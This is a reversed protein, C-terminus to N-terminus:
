GSPIVGLQQMMGMTDWNDWVEVIKDGDYRQITIGTFAIEKGTPSKGILKGKYVGRVSYRIVVKDGEVIKDEITIQADSVSSSFYSLYKKLGEPGKVTPHSPDKYVFNPAIFKDVADMNRKVWIEEFVKLSFAKLNEPMPYIGKLLEYQINRAL